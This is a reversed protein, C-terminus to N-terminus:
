WIPIGCFRACGSLGTCSGCSPKRSFASIRWAAHSLQRKATPASAWFLRSEGNEREMCLRDILTMFGCFLSKESDAALSVGSETIHVRYSEGDLPLLAANGICFTLSATPLLEIESLGYSFNKWFEAFVPKCLSAHAVARTKAEVPYRGPLNKRNQVDFFM